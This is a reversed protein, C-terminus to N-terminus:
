KGRIVRLHQVANKTTLRIIYVGEQNQRADWTVQVNEGAAAKAAKLQRVLHGNLDYVALTYDEEQAFTFQIKTQEQFPNPYSNLSVATAEGSSKSSAAQAIPIAPAITGAAQNIVKFNVKLATGATGSANTGSYPTANLTYDGLSFIVGGYNVSGDSNKEDGFLTYPATETKNVTWKGSLALKISKVTLPDADIRINLNKTPLTALNLTTGEKITLIEKETDANILTFVLQATATVNNNVKVTVQDAQSAVSQSNTVVLSFVYTGAVLSGVIPKAITKSNFSATSPGSVQSWTYQAITNTADTASGNLIVTSSPLTITIDDGASAIPGTVVVNANVIVTVQDAVSTANENDTAVLSFVYTGAVLGGVIPQAMVKSNFSATSPGSVQSWTYSVVTGNADTASGNLVLTNTPLTITADPGAFVVPAPNNTVDAQDTVTFSITLPTGVTDSDMAAAYISGKLQYNGVTPIWANYNKGVTGFLVFPANSEAYNKNEAGSLRFAVSDVTNTSTNARINLNRTPLTALNLTMGDTLTFMDQETDANVLTFSEVKQDISDVVPPEVIGGAAINVLWFDTEGKSTASKQVGTASNSTGALM